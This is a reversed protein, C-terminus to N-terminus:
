APEPEVPEIPPEDAAGSVAEKAVGTADRTPLLATETPWTIRRRVPWIEIHHPDGMLLPIGPRQEFPSEYINLIARVILHEFQFAFQVALFTEGGVWTGRLVASGEVRSGDSVYDSAHGISIHYGTSPFGLLYLRRAGWEVPIRPTEYKADYALCTKTIWTSLILQDYPHLTKPKGELLGTMIPRVATELHEMWGGNCRGCVDPLKDGKPRAGRLTPSSATNAGFEGTQADQQFSDVGSYQYEMYVPQSGDTHHKKAFHALKDMLWLPFVDEGSSPVDVDGCFICTILPPKKPM